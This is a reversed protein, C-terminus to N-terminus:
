QLLQWQTLGLMIWSLVLLIIVTYWYMWVQHTWWHQRCQEVSGVHEDKAWEQDQGRGQHGLCTTILTVEGRDDVHELVGATNGLWYRWKGACTPTGAIDLHWSTLDPLCLPTTHTTLFHPLFFCCNGQKTRFSGVILWFHSLKNGSCWSAAHTSGTSCNLYLKPHWNFIIYLQFKPCNWWPLHTPRNQPHPAVPWYSHGQWIWMFRTVSIIRMKEILPDIHFKCWNLKLSETPTLM